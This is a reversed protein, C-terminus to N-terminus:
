NKIQKLDSKKITVLIYDDYYTINYLYINNELCKKIFRKTNSSVKIIIM